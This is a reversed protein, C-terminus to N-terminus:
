PPLALNFAGQIPLLNKASFSGRRYRRSRHTKKVSPPDVSFVALYAWGGCRRFILHLM